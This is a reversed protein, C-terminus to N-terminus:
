KAEPPILHDPVRIGAEKYYRLAGVHVPVPLIAINGPKIATAAKNAKLLAERTEWTAKTVKYVIDPDMDKHTMISNLTALTRVPKDQTKYTNAPVFGSTLYPYKGLFRKMEEKNFEIFAIPFRSSLETPAPHPADAFTGHVQVLNDVMMSLCQVHPANVIRKEKIGFFKLIKRGYVDVDGGRTSLCLTQGKLGKITRINDRKRMSWWQFYGATVPAVVRLNEYKKGKAWGIGNFAEYSVAASGVAFDSQKSSVLKINGKGAKSIEPTIQLGSAKNVLQTWAGGLVYWAGGTSGTALSLREAAPVTVSFSVASAFFGIVFAICFYPNRVHFKTVTM